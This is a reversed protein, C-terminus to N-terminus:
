VWHCANLSVLCPWTERITQKHRDYLPMLKLHKFGQLTDLTDKDAPIQDHIACM